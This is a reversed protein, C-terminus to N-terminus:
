AGSSRHISYRRRSSTILRNNLNNSFKLLEARTSSENKMANMLRGSASAVAKVEDGPTTLQLREYNILCNEAMLLWDRIKRGIWWRGNFKWPSVRDCIEIILTVSRGLHTLLVNVFTSILEREDDRPNTKVRSLGSFFRFIQFWFDSFKHSSFKWFKMRFDKFSISLNQLSSELCAVTAKVTVVDGDQCWDLSIRLVSELTIEEDSRRSYWSSVRGMGIGEKGEVKRPQWM